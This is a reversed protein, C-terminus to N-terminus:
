RRKAYNLASRSRLDRSADEVTEDLNEVFIEAGQKETKEFMGTEVETEETFNQCDMKCLCCIQTASVHNDKFWLDICTTHYVHKCPLVRIPSSTKFHELCVSCTDSVRFAAVQQFTRTPFMAEVKNTAIGHAEPTEVPVVGRRMRRRKCTFM